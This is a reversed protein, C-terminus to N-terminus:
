TKGEAREAIHGDFQEEGGRITRFGDRPPSGAM